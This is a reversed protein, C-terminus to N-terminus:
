PIMRLSATQSSSSWPASFVLFPRRTMAKSRAFSVHDVRARAGAALKTARGGCPSAGDRRRAAKLRAESGSPESAAPKTLACTWALPSGLLKLGHHVNAENSKQM